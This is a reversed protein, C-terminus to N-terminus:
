KVATEQILNRYAKVQAVFSMPVTFLLGLGVLLVGVLNILMIVVSLGILSLVEGHTINWSTKLSEVAGLQKDPIVLFFFMYRTTVYVLIGVGILGVLVALVVGTTSSALNGLFYALVGIAGLGLTVGLFILSYLLSAGLYRLWLSRMAWIDSYTVSQGDILKLYVHSQGLQIVPQLWFGVVLSMITVVILTIASSEGFGAQLVAQVIQPALYIGFVMGGLVVLFKFNRKTLGFSESVIKDISIKNM